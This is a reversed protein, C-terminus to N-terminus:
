IKDGIVSSIAQSSTESESEKSSISELSKAKEINRGMDSIQNRLEKSYVLISGRKLNKILM